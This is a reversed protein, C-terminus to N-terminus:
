CETDPCGKVGLTELWKRFNEELKTIQELTVSFGGAGAHGGFELFSDEGNM